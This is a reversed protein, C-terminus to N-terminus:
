GSSPATSPAPALSAFQAPTAEPVQAGSAVPVEVAQGNLEFSVGNVGPLATATFVIQAVADIQTQGVLQGFTGGLNVTAVGSTLTAGLVVTQTPVSNQLGAAAEADTPGDILAGLVTTIGPAAVPVDRAVAVLRGGPGVFYIRVPVEVPSPVTSTTSPPASPGLLGFPVGNKPLASPASDVPVGCAALAVAAVALAALALPAPVAPPRSRPSSM